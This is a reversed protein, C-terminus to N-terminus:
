VGFELSTLCFLCENALGVTSVGFARLSHVGGNMGGGWFLLVEDEDEM